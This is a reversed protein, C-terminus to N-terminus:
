LFINMKSARKPELYTEAKVPIRSTKEFYKVNSTELEDSMSSFM